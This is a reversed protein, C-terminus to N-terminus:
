LAFANWRAQLLLVAAGDKSPAACLLDSIVRTSSMTYRTMAPIQPAMARARAPSVPPPNRMERKEDAEETREEAGPQRPPEVGRRNEDHRDVRM